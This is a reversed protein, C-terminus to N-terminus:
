YGDPNNKQWRWTDTCAQKLTKKAEWGLEKKAKETSAYCTAIDGPRRTTIKKPITVGTAEEFASVVELVSEGKGTGLNIISVGAHSKLYEIAAVHGEALDVVHIYDRVGTGDPTNYDDGYVKLFPRRGVATQSIYPM